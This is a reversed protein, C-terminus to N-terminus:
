AFFMAAAPLAGYDRGHKKRYKAKAAKHAQKHTKGARKAAKYFDWYAKPPGRRKSRKASRKKSSYKKSGRKKSGRKKSVRKKGKKSKRKKRPDRNILNSAFPFMSSEKQHTARAAFAAAKAEGAAKWAEAVKAQLSKERNPIASAKGTLIAHALQSAEKASSGAKRAAARAKKAEREHKKKEAYSKARAKAKELAQASRKLETEAMRLKAAMGHKHPKKSGKRKKPRTAAISNLLGRLAHLRAKFSERGAARKSHSSKKSGHYTKGKKASKAYAVKLKKFNLQGNRKRFQSLHKNANIFNLWPNGGKKGKKGKKSPRADRGFRGYHAYTGYSSRRHRMKNRRPDRQTKKWPNYGIPHIPPGSRINGANVHSGFKEKAKDVADGLWTAKVHGIVFGDGDYVNYTDLKMPHM